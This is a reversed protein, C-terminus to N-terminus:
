NNTWKIGELYLQKEITSIELLSWRQTSMYCWLFIFTVAPFLFSTSRNNLWTLEHCLFRVFYHSHPNSANYEVNMIIVTPMVNNLFAKEDTM